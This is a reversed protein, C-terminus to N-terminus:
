DRSDGGLGNPNLYRKLMGMCKPCLDLVSQEYILPGDASNRVLRVGNVDGSKTGNLYYEYFTGCRDCKKAQAM